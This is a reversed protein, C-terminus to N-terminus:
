RGMLCLIMKTRLSSSSSGSTKAEGRDKDIQYSPIKLAINAIMFEYYGRRNKALRDPNPVEALLREAKDYDGDKFYRSAILISSSKFHSWIVFGVMLGLIVALQHQDYFLCVGAAIVFIAMLAYRGKANYM